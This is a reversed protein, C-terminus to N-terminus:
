RPGKRLKAYMSPCWTPFVKRNIWLRKTCTRIELNSRRYFPCPTSRPWSSIMQSRTRVRTLQQYLRISSHVKLPKDALRPRPQNSKIFQSPFHHAQCTELSLHSRLHFWCLAQNITQRYKPLTSFIKKFKLRSSSDFTITWFASRTELWLRLNTAESPISQSLIWLM